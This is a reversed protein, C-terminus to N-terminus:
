IIPCIEEYIVIEMTLKIELVRVVLHIWCSTQCAKLSEKLNM